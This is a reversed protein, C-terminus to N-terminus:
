VLLNTDLVFPLVTSNLRAPLNNMSAVRLTIEDREPDASAGLGLVHYYKDVIAGTNSPKFSVRVVDRLEISLVQNQQTTDLAQLSVRIMEARYEPSKFQALFTQAIEEPATLSTTLNDTPYSRIGYFSQSTADDKTATANVGIVQVQNYLQESGYVIDLETFPIATGSYLSQSNIDAFSLVTNTISTATGKVQGSMSAYPIGAWATAYRTTADGVSTNWSGDFYDGLTAGEEFQLGNGIFDYVSTTGSASISLNFGAVIGTGSNTATMSLQTWPQSSTNSIAQSASAVPNGETDILQLIGLLGSGTLGQGRFWGSFSYTNATGSPNIQLQNVNVYDMTTTNLSSIASAGNAQGGYKLGVSSTRPLYGYLWGNGLGNGNLYDTTDVSATSPYAILNQRTTNAWSYDTFSRDEFVLVASANSYLDAPESRAVDQLYALVNNGIANQDHGLLTKGGQLIIANSLGSYNLTSQVRDGTAQVVEPRVFNAEGTFSKKAVQDLEDLATLTARGDLGSSDFTFNWDQIRGTFRRIGNSSIRLRGGPQVVTYGGTVYWLPSSTNEPDFIRDNNIFTINASGASYDELLSSIGRSINVSEVYQTVNIFGSSAFSLEVVYSPLPMRTRSEVQLPFSSLCVVM